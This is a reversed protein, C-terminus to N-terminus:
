WHFFTIACNLRKVIVSTIVATLNVEKETYVYAIHAFAHSHAHTHTESEVQEEMKHSNNHKDM